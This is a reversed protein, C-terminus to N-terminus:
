TYPHIAGTISTKTCKPCFALSRNVVVLGCRILITLVLSTFHTTLDFRNNSQESDSRARKVPQARLNAVRGYTTLRRGALFTSSWSPPKIRLVDFLLELILERAQPSPYQLSQLLSRIASANDASLSVLGSWSKLM